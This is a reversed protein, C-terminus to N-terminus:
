LASCLFSFISLCSGWKFGPIFGSAESPYATGAASTADTTNTDM